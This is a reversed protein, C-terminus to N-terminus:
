QWGGEKQLRAKAEADSCIAPTPHHIRARLAKRIALAQILKRKLLQKKSM